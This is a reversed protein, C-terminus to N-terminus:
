LRLEVGAEMATKLYTFDLSLKAGLNCGPVCRGCQTCKGWDITNVLDM